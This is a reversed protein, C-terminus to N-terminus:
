GASYWVIDLVDKLLADEASKFALTSAATGPVALVTGEADVLVPLDDRRAAPVKADVFLDQLKKSGAVLRIRDGSRRSRVLLPLRVANLDFSLRNAGRPPGGAAPSGGGLTQRSRSQARVATELVIGARPVATIGPVVVNLQWPVRCAPRIAPAVALVGGHVHVRVGERSAAPLDFAADQALLLASRMAEIAHYDVDDLSGRVRAIALRLLRRQIAVPLIQMDAASVIVAEGGAPVACAALAEAAAEELAESDAAALDGLRVLAADVNSNYYARLLPLLEARVRNRAYHLDLNSADLRPSLSHAACYAEVEARGIDHLPRVIPLRKPPFGALGDVGCGRLLNLLITEVRDDRTHALAIRDAGVGAAAARLFAHRAERAAVQITVHRRRRIAAVDIRATELPVHLSGALTAVFAADEESQAGRLCHDVHAAVLDIRLAERLGALAHLLATSDPGGSCGVLVRAGAPLLDYRRNAEEIHGALDGPNM